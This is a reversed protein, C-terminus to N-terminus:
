SFLKFAKEALYGVVTAGGIIIWRWTELVGVRASLVNIKTEIDNKIENHQKTSNEASEKLKNEIMGEVSDIKDCIERSITTIRSHIDKINDDVKNNDKELNNLREDHVALLKGINNSLETLKEINSDLRSVVSELVKVQADITM